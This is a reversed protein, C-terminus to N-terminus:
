EATNQIREKLLDGFQTNAPADSSGLEPQLEKISLNIVRSKKDMGLIKAEISDGAKLLEAADKVKERSVESAKVRGFIDDGLEVTAAKADVETIM